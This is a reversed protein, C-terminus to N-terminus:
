GKGYYLVNDIGKELLEKDSLDEPYDDSLGYGVANSQGAVLWVNIKEGAPENSKGSASASIVLAISSFVLALSLVVLLIKKTKNKM